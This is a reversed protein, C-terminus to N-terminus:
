GNPGQLVVELTLTHTRGDKLIAFIRRGAESDKPVWANDIGVDGLGVSYHTEAADRYAFNYYNKLRCDCTIRTPTAPRQALYAALTMGQSETRPSGSAGDSVPRSNLVFGVLVGAGFLFVGALVAFVVWGLATARSVPARPPEAPAPRVEAVDPAPAPRGQDLEKVWAPVPAAAPVVVAAGCQRCTARAGAKDDPARIFAGCGPCTFHISV